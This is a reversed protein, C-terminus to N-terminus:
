LLDYKVRFHQASRALGADATLLTANEAFCIALHLADLTKLATELKGIWDRAVHYHGAELSLLRYCGSDIHLRFLSQIETANAKSLTRERVKRAVASYLEVEVLSSIVPVTSARIKREAKESLAEPCYYAAIVSTDV